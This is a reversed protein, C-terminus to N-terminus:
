QLNILKNYIKTRVQYTSSATAQSMRGEKCAAVAQTLRVQKYSDNNPVRRNLCSLPLKGAEVLRSKERFLTTKPIQFCKFM